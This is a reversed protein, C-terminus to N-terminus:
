SKMPTKYSCLETWRLLSLDDMGRGPSLVLYNVVGGLGGGGGRSNLILWSWAHTQLESLSMSQPSRSPAKICTAPAVQSSSPPPMHLSTLLDIM